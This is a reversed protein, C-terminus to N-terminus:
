HARRLVIRKRGHNSATSSESIEIPFAAELTRLWNDVDHEFVTGTIRLQELSPDAIEIDLASYRRIDNVISSLPEDVYHLTGSRWSGVVDADVTSRAIAAGVNEITLQHGATLRAAVNTGTEAEPTGVDVIGEAVAIVVEDSTRRVNFATGVATFTMTGAHVKFPRTPDKAVTFYAEGSELRVSRSHETFDAAIKSLGSVTVVSGDALRVTRREGATTSVVVASPDSQNKIRPILSVGIAVIAIAAAMAFLSVFGFRRRPSENDARTAPATEQSASQTQTRWSSVLQEGDYTDSSVEQASPWIAADIEDVACWLSEIEDYAMRHREDAAFWRQWEGIREPTPDAAQLEVFWEAAQQYIPDQELREQLSKDM